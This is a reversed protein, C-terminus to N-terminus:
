GGDLSMDPQVPFDSASLLYGSAPVCLGEGATPRRPVADDSCAVRVMPEMVSKPGMAAAEGCASIAALHLPVACAQKWNSRMSPRLSSATDDPYLERQQTLIRTYQGGQWTPGCGTHDKLHLAVDASAFGM